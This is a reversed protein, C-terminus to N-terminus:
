SGEGMTRQVVLPATAAPAALKMLVRHREPKDLKAIQRVSRYFAPWSREKRL